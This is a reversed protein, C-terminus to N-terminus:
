SFHPRDNKWQCEKPYYLNGVFKFSPVNTRYCSVMEREGSHDQIPVIMREKKIRGGLVFVGDEKEFFPTKDFQKM